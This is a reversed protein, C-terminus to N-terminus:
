KLSHLRPLLRVGPLNRLRYSAKAYGQMASAEFWIRAQRFMRKMSYLMGLNYQAPANGQEASLRYWHLALDLNRAVGQGNLYLTGLDNQADAHGQGAAREFWKRAEIADRKVYLGNLYMYGIYYQAKSNGKNAVPLWIQYASAYDRKKFSYLGAKYAPDHADRILNFNAWSLNPAIFLFAALLASFGINYRRSGM